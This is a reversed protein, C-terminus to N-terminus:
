KGKLSILAKGNDTTCLVIMAAGGCGCTTGYIYKIDINASALKSSVLKLAGAKDELEVVVVENEKASSYNKKKLADMARLSDGTVFMIKAENGADAYGAVAAINIGGDALIKTMDALVGIKNAVTVVVEKGLRVSKIM